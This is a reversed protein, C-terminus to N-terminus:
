RVVQGGSGAIYELHRAHVVEDLNADAGVQVGVGGYPAFGVLGHVDCLHLRALCEGVRQSFGLTTSHLSTFPFLLVASHLSLLLLRVTWPCAPPHTADIPLVRCDLVNNIRHEEM